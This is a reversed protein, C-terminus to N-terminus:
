RGPATAAPATARVWGPGKPDVQTTTIPGVGVIQVIVPEDGASGDWHVGNAPHKMISGAGLPTAKSLDFIPGTGAYWTGQLVTVYRDGSHAHPTDMWHPPFKVRVVYVGPKAADGLLAASQAGHGGPVDTWRVEVPAIRVFGAADQPAALAASCPVLGTVLVLAAALGKRSTPKM